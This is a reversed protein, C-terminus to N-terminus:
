QEFPNIISFELGQQKAGSFIRSLLQSQDYVGCFNEARAGTAFVPSLLKSNITRIYKAKNEYAKWEDGAKPFNIAMPEASTLLVLIDSSAQVLNQFYRLTSNIEELEAKAATILNRKLLNQYNFNRVLFLYNKANKSFSEFVGQVNRSFTTYCQGNTCSKDFYKDGPNFITKDDLHFYKAEGRSKNMSWYIAEGFYNKIESCQNVELLSQDKNLEGEFIGTKYNKSSVFQWIPKHEYDSCDSKINKKGTVQSLLASVSNPRIKYLDYEWVSGICLSDEFATNQDRNPYSYKLLAMHEIDLGPVQIWIIKTPIKGFQHKKLNLSTVQACSSFLFCLFIIKLILKKKM